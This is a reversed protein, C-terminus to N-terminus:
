LAKPTTQHPARQSPQIDVTDSHTGSYQAADRLRMSLNALASHRSAHNRLAVSMMGTQALHAADSAASIEECFNM